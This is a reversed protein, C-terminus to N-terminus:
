EGHAYDGANKMICIKRKRLDGSFLINGSENLLGADINTHRVIQERVDVLYQTTGNM